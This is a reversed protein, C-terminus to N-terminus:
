YILFSNRKYFSRTSICSNLSHSHSFNEQMGDKECNIQIRYGTPDYIKDLHQKAAELLEMMKERVEVPTTFFTPYHKKTIILLHGERSPYKDKIVYAVDNELLVLNKNKQLKCFVCHMSDFM